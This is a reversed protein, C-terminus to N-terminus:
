AARRGTTEGRVRDVLRATPAAQRILAHVAYGAAAGLTNGILDDVDFIRGPSVTLSGVLQATEIGLSVLFGTAVAHRMTCGRSVLPVLLGLPVFLAVNLVIGIPDQGVDVLPTLHLWVRWPRPDDLDIPMPLLVHALLVCGYLCAVVAVAARRVSLRGQRHSRWLWTALVVSALPILVPLAPVESTAM